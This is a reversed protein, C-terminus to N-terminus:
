VCHLSGNSLCPQPPFHAFLLSLVKKIKSFSILPVQFVHVVPKVQWFLLIDHNKVWEDVCGVVCVLHTFQLGESEMYYIISGM